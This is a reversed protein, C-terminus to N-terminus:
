WKLVTQLGLLSVQPFSGHISLPLISPRVQKVSTLWVPPVLIMRNLELNSIWASNVMAFTLIILKIIVSDFHDVSLFLM